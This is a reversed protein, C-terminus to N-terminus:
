LNEEKPIKFFDKKILINTELNYISFIVENSYADITKWGILELSNKDFFINIKNKKNEDFEYEIIKEDVKLPEFNEILNLISKKQLVYLLPTKKLPYFYIKKYRKKVIAIKKGNAIISKKKKPYECKMLLPYKIHCSGREEKEGIKQIFDFSLTDTQKFKNILKEQFNAKSSDPFFLILFFINIFIFYTKKMSNSSYFKEKALM